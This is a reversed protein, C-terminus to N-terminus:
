SFVRGPTSNCTPSVPSLSQVTRAAEGRRMAMSVMRQYASRASLYAPPCRRKVLRLLTSNRTVSSFFTSGSM